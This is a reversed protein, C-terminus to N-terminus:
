RIKLIKFIELSFNKIMVYLSRRILVEGNLCYKCVVAVGDHICDKPKAVGDHIREGEEKSTSYKLRHMM